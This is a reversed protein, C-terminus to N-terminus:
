RISKSLSDFDYKWAPYDPKDPAMLAVTLEISESAAIAAFLPIRYPSLYNQILIAKKKM